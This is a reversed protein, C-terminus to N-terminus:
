GENHRVMKIKHVKCIPPDEDEQMVFIWHDSTSKPCVWKQSVSISNPTGALPAHGSIVNREGSQLNVQEKLWRRTIEHQSFLDVIEITTDQGEEAYAILRKLEDDM